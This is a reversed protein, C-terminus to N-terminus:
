KTPATRNYIQLANSTKVFAVDVASEEAVINVGSLLSNGSYHTDSVRIKCAMADATPCDNLDYVRIWKAPDEVNDVTPEHNAIDFAFYAETLIDKESVAATTFAATGAAIAIALFGFLLRKM